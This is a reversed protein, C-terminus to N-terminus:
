LRHPNFSSLQRVLCHQFIERSRALRDPRNVAYLLTECAYYASVACFAYPEFQITPHHTSLPHLNSVTDTYTHTQTQGQQGATQTKIPISTFSFLQLSSPIVIIRHTIIM